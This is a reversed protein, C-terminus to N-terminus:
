LNASRHFPKSVSGKHLRWSHIDAKWM